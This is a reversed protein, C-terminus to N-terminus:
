DYPDKDTTNKGEILSCICSILMQPFFYLQDLLRYILLKTIAM